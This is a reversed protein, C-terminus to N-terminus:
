LRPQSPSRWQLARSPSSSTCAEWWPARTRIATVTLRGSMVKALLAHSARMTRVRSGPSCSSRTARAPMTARWRDPRRQSPSRGAVPCRRYGGRCEAHIRRKGASSSARALWLWLHPDGCHRRGPVALFGITLRWGEQRTYLQMITGRSHQTSNLRGTSRRRPGLTRDTPKGGSVFRRGASHGSTWRRRM